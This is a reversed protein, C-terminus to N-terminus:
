QGGEREPRVEIIVRRGVYFSRRNRDTIPIRLTQAAMGIADTEAVGSGQLELILKDGGDIASTISCELKM